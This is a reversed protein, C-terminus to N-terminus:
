AEKRSASRSGSRLVSTPLQNQPTWSTGSTSSRHPAEIGRSRIWRTVTGGGPALLVSSQSRKAPRNPMSGTSNVGVSWAFAESPTGSDVM